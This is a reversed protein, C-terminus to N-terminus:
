NEVSVWMCPRVGCSYSYTYVGMSNLEGVYSVTSVYVLSEGPTRLWCVSTGSIPGSQVGNDRAYQTTYGIAKDTGKLYQNFEADSLLFVRDATVNGGKTKYKLNNPTEIDSEIIRGIENGKFAKNLFDRNLWKRVDSTEWTAAGYSDKYIVADIAYLTMILAKNEEADYDLVIWELSEAGNSTDGDQEYTGFRIINGAVTYKYDDLLAATQSYDPIKNLLEVGKEINGRNILLKAANYILIDSFVCGALGIVALSLILIWATQIKLTRHMKKILESTKPPNKVKGKKKKAKAEAVEETNQVNMEPTNSDM